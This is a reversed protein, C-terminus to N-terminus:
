WHFKEKASVGVITHAFEQDSQQGANVYYHICGTMIFSIHGFIFNGAMFAKNRVNQIILLHNIM